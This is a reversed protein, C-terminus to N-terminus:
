LQQAAPLFVVDTTRELTTLDVEYGLDVSRTVYGLGTMLEMFEVLSINLKPYATPAVEIILIPLVEAKELYKRFGKMVRYEYGETDIKILRLKEVTRSALYSSLTTVKVELKEAIMQERMFGPVMTNWGINDLKTVAITSTEDKDGLALENIYLQYEPNQSRVYQLYNAYRPVPEFAHVEGSKGVLGLAIASIYGVNAGVDIFTDGERLYKRLLGIIDPQYAGFYMNHMAPDLSLDINFTIGNISIDGSQANFLYPKFLIWFRHPDTLALKLAKIGKTAFGNM